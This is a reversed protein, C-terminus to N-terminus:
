MERKVALCTLDDEYDAEGVFAEADHHYFIATSSGGLLQVEIFQFRDVHNVTVHHLGFVDM